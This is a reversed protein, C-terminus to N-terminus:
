IQIAMANIMASAIGLVCRISFGNARTIRLFYMSRSSFSQRGADPDVDKWTALRWLDGAYALFLYSESAAFSDPYETSPLTVDLDTWTNGADSTHLVDDNTVFYLDAGSYAGVRIKMANPLSDYVSRWEMGNDPSWYVDRHTRTVIDEATTAIVHTRSGDLCGHVDAWSEGGDSSILLGCEYQEIVAHTDTAHVAVSRATSLESWESTGEDWRYTGTRHGAYVHEGEIAISDALDYSYLGTTTLDVPTWTAGSDSSMYPGASTWAYLDMAAHTTLRIDKVMPLGSEVASWSYGGDFTRLVQGNVFLLVEGRFEILRDIDAIEFVPHEIRQWTNGRDESLFFGGDSEVFVTRDASALKDIYVDHLGLDVEVWSAGSDSSRYVRGWTSAYIDGDAVALSRVEVPGPPFSDTWTRGRDESILIRTMGTGVLLDGMSLLRRLTFSLGSGETVSRWTAGEDISEYTQSGAVAIVSSGVTVIGSIRPQDHMGEVARSWQEGGDTTRFIGADSTVALLTNGVVALSEIHHGPAQESRVVTWTEGHDESKFLGRETGVFVSTGVVAMPGTEEPVALSEAVTWSTGGDTSRLIAQGTGAYITTGHVALTHFQTDARFESLLGVWNAGDDTSYYIQYDGLAYIGEDGVAFDRLEGDLPGPNIATWTKGYDVSRFLGTYTEVFLTSGRVSLGWANGTAGRNVITWTAGDDESRYVYEDDSMTAFLFRGVVAFSRVKSAAFEPSGATWTEGQDSSRYMGLSTGALLETGYAMLFRVNTNTLGSNVREWTVGRDISRQVGSGHGAFLTEGMTALSPTHREDLGANAATWTAGGDSSRFIGRRTSIFVDDGISVFSRVGPVTDSPLGANSTTWTDGGDLSRYMGENASVFLTSDLAAVDNISVGSYGIDVERWQEDEPSFLYVDGRTSTLLTSGTSFM